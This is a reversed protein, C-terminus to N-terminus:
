SLMTRRVSVIAVAIEMSMPTTTPIRTAAATSCWVCLLVTMVRSLRLRARASMPQYRQSRPPVGLSVEVKPVGQRQSVPKDASGAVM